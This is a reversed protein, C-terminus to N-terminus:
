LRAILLVSTALISLILGVICFPAKAILADALMIFQAVLLWILEEM